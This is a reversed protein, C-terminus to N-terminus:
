PRGGPVYNKLRDLLFVHAHGCGTCVLAVAPLAPSLDVAEFTPSERRCGPCARKRKANFWNEVRTKFGPDLPM